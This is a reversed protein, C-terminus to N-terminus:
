AKEKMGEILWLAEYLCKNTWVTLKCDARAEENLLAIEERLANIVHEKTPNTRLAEKLTGVFCGRREDEKFHFYPRELTATENRDAVPLGGKDNETCPNLM